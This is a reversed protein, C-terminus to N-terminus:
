SYWPEDLFEDSMVDFEDTDPMLREFSKSAATRAAKSATNQESSEAQKQRKISKDVTFNEYTIYEEGKNTERKVMFVQAKDFAETLQRAANVKIGLNGALTTLKMNARHEERINTHGNPLKGFSRRMLSITIIYKAFDYEKMGLDEQAKRFKPYSCIDDDYIASYKEKTRLGKPSEQILQMLRPNRQVTAEVRKRVEDHNHVHVTFTTKPVLSAYDYADMAGLLGLIKLAEKVQGTNTSFPKSTSTRAKDQGMRRLIEAVSTHVMGRSTRMREMVLYTPILYPNDWFHFCDPIEMYRHGTIIPENWLEINESPAQLRREPFYSEIPVFTDASHKM